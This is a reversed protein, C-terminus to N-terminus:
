KGDTDSGLDVTLQSLHQEGFPLPYLLAVHEGHDIRAQEELMLVSSTSGADLLTVGDILFGTFGCGPLQSGHCGLVRIEM